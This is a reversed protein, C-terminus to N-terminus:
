LSQRYKSRKSARFKRSLLAGPPRGASSAWASLLMIIKSAMRGEKLRLSLALAATNPAEIM